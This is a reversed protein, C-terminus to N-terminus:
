LAIFRQLDAWVPQRYDRSQHVMRPAFSAVTAVQRGGIEVQHVADRARAAPARLLAQAPADGLLLLRRPAALGLHHHLLPTLATLDAERLRGISPRAPSLPLLYVSARALGIAGLMRDFLTGVEGSLLAGAARDEAEPMDVVVVDGQAPDGIADLRAAVPGPVAADILLWARFAALDAPLATAPTPLPTPASAPVGPVPSREIAPAPALWDRPADDVLVDVGAEAWWDLASLAVGDVMKLFGRKAAANSQM